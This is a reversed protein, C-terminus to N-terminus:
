RVPLRQLRSLVPLSAGLDRTASLFMRTTVMLELTKKESLFDVFILLSFHPLSDYYFVFKLIM